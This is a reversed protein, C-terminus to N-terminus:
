ILKALIELHVDFVEPWNELKGDINVTERSGDPWFVKVELDKPSRKKELRIVDLVLPSATLISIEEKGSKLIERIGKVVENPMFARRRWHNEDQEVEPFTIPYGEPYHHFSSGIHIHIIM